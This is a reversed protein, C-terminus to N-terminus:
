KWPGWHSNRLMFKSMEEWNYKQQPKAKMIAYYVEQPFEQDWVPDFVKNDYEVWAHPNNFDKGTWRRGNITGHVLTGKQNDIVYKGSLRYCDGLRGQFSNQAKKYWNM